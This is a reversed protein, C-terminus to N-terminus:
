GNESRFRYGVGPVTEIFRPEDAPDGLKARLRSVLGRVLESSGPEAYGWVREILDDTGITHGRHTVLLYLLRFELQTLHVEEADGLTATRRDPDLRLGHAQLSLLAANPIAAARRLMNLSYAAVLRPDVPLTLALDCGARVAALLTEQRPSDFLVILPAATLARLANIAELLRDEDPRLAVVLDAPASEWAKAVEALRSKQQTDLGAQRLAFAYTDREDADSGAITALTTPPNM